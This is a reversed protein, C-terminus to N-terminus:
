ILVWGGTEAKFRLATWQEEIVVSTEGCVTDSGSLVITVPLTTTSIVEIERGSKAVPLTITYQGGVKIIDDSSTVTYNGSPTTTKALSQLWLMTDRPPFRDSNHYHHLCDGGGILTDLDKEM